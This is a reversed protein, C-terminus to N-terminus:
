EGPAHRRRARIGLSDSEDADFPAGSLGDFFEVDDFAARLVPGVRTRPLDHYDHVKVEATWAGGERRLTYSHFWLRGDAEFHHRLWLDLPRDADTGQAATGDAASSATGDAPSSEKLVLRGRARIRDGNLYQLILVGGPATRAVLAAVGRDIAEADGMAPIVNGLALVADFRRGALAAPDAVDGEIWEVRPADEAPQAEREATRAQALMAASQDLGTVRFGLRALARAHVGTGCGADFVTGGAPLSATLFPMERRLRPEWGVWRDYHAAVPSYRDDPRDM